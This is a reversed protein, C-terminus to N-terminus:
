GGGDRSRLFVLRRQGNMAKSSILRSVKIASMDTTDEGDVSVLKDGIRVLEGLVSTDKIAHVVPIGNLPTDIVVGLKGPPAIVHIEEEEGDFMRDFSNDEEFYNMNEANPDPPIKSSEESNARFRSDEQSLDDALARTGEASKTGEASSVSPMDGGTGGYAMKFDFGASMTSENSPEEQQGFAVAAAFMNGGTPGIPDGLTSIDQDEEIAIVNPGMPPDPEEDFEHVAYSSGDRRRRVLFIIVFFVLVLGASSGAAVYVWNPIPGSKKAVNIREDDIEIEMENITSFTDSDNLQLTELFDVREKETDFVQAIVGKMGKQTYKTGSRVDVFLNTGVELANTAQLNRLTNIQTGGRKSLQRRGGPLESVKAKFTIDSRVEFTDPKYSKELEEKVLKSTTDEFLSEARGGFDNLDDFTFKLYFNLEQRPFSPSVSPLSSPSKTPSFSPVVTPSSSPSVSPKM